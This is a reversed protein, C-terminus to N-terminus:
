PVPQEVGRAGPASALLPFTLSPEHRAPFAEALELVEALEDGRGPDTVRGILAVEVVFGAASVIREFTDLSPSVRQSEYAAVTAHSTGARGALSRLSLRSRHRAEVIARHLTM